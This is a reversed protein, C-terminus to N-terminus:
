IGRLAAAFIFQLAHMPAPRYLPTFTTHIDNKDSSRFWGPVIGHVESRQPEVTGAPPATMTRRGTRHQTTTTSTKSRVSVTADMPTTATRYDYDRTAVTRHCCQALIRVEWVSEAAGDFLGSPERYPLRM